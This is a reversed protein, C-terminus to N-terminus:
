SRQGRLFGGQDGQKRTIEEEQYYEDNMGSKKVELKCFM